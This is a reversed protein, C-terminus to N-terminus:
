LNIRKFVFRPISRIILMILAWFGPAYLVDKKRDIGDAIRKAVQDPQAVLAKPLKLGQTM